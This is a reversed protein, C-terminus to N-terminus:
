EMVDNINILIPFVGADRIGDISVTGEVIEIKKFMDIFFEEGSTVNLLFIKRSENKVKDHIEVEAWIKPDFVAFLTCKYLLSESSLLELTIKDDFPFNSFIEEIIDLSLPNNKMEALKLLALKLQRWVFLINLKYNNENIDLVEYLLSVEAIGYEWRCLNKNVTPFNIYYLENRFHINLFKLPKGIYVENLKFELYKSLGFYYKEHQLSRGNEDSIIISVREIIKM